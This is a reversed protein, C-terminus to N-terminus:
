KTSNNEYPSRYFYRRKRHEDPVLGELLISLDSPSVEVRLHEGPAGTRPVVPFGFRGSELRKYVIIYGNRDWWLLKLRNRGRNYFVFVHGNLPDTMLETRVLNCLGDFGRRLDTPQVAVFVRVSGPLMM